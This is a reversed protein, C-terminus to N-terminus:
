LRTREYRTYDSGSVDQLIVEEWVRYSRKRDCETYDSGTVDKIIADKWIRYLRKECGTHDSGAVGQIIAKQWMRYLKSNILQGAMWRQLDSGRVGLLYIFLVMWWGWWLWWWWWWWWIEKKFYVEATGLLGNNKEREAGGVRGKWWVCHRWVRSSGVCGRCRQQWKM